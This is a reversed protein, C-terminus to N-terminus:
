LGGGPKKKPPEKKGRGFLRGWFGPKKKEKPDEVKPAPQPSPAPEGVQQRPAPAGSTKTPSPPLGVDEASVPPPGHDAGLVGTIRDFLSRPSHVDCIASPVTGKAFYETYVMSRSEIYGDDSVVEVSGCAENPRRGSVRCINVAVVDDPRDFWERKHGATARKMFGAWVPVALEGGYGNAIITQPQDFGIWVGTVVRPTYGVFWADVYDNTTGTKGAAPLTFGAQRARYGTGHNVVDALMSSM